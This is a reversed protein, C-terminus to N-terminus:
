RTAKFLIVKFCLKIPLPFVSEVISLFSDLVIEKDQERQIKPYCLRLTIINNNREIEIISFPMTTYVM